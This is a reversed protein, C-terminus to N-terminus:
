CSMEVAGVLDITGHNTPEHKQEHEHQKQEMQEDEHHENPQKLKITFKDVVQKLQARKLPKNHFDDFGIERCQQRIDAGIEGTIAVIPIKTKLDHKLIRTAELGDMVPMRLDMLILDYMGPISRQIMDVAVQGNEARVGSCNMKRLMMMLLKACADTDEVVLVSPNAVMQNAGCEVIRKKDPSTDTVSMSMMDTPMYDEKRIINSDDGSPGPEKTEKLFRKPRRKPKKTSRKSPSISSSTSSTGGSGVSSADSGSVVAADVYSIPPEEPSPSTPTATSVKASAQLGDKTIIEQVLPRATLATESSSEAPLAFWFFTLGLAPETEYRLDGGLAMVLHYSLSLSIGLSNKKHSSVGEEIKNRLSLAQQFDLAIEDQENEESPLVEQHYKQFIPPLTGTKNSSSANKASESGAIVADSGSGEQVALTCTCRGCNYGLTLKIECDGGASGKAQENELANDILARLVRKLAKPDTMVICPGGGQLELIVKIKSKSDTNVSSSLSRQFVELAVQKLDVKECSATYEVGQDFKALDSIDDILEVADVIHAQGEQLLQISELDEPSAAKNGNDVVHQQTNSLVMDCVSQLVHLPTRMHHLSRSMFNDLMKLSRKTEDLLLRSKAENIKRGTDDRIFCRTHGFQGEKDYKVNSDILLHVVRGDKTRFRVPVDKITKGSGLSKFIELVLEQEDPCFNMIPQGIYEEATYGLVNLETQNCWLVKGDGGLWHLAIPANQFFDILETKFFLIM